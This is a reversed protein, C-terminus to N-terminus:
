VRKKMRPLGDVTKLAEVARRHRYRTQRLGALLCHHDTWFRSSRPFPITKGIRTTRWHWRVAPSIHGLGHLRTPVFDVIRSEGPELHVLKFNQYVPIVGGVMYIKFIATFNEAETGYNALEAKPTIDSLTDVRGLPAVIRVAAVDHVGVWQPRPHWFGIWAIFNGGTV